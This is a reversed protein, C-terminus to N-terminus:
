NELMYWVMGDGSPLTVNEFHTKSIRARNEQVVVCYPNYYWNFAGESGAYYIYYNFFMRGGRRLVALTPPPNSFTKGLSVWAGLSNVAGTSAVKASAQRLASFSIQKPDNVNATMADVGRRSIRLDYSGNTMQGMVVRRAM